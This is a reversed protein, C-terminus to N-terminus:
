AALDVGKMQKIIADVDDPLAQVEAMKLVEEGGEEQKAADEEPKIEAKSNQQTQAKDDEAQKDKNYSTKTAGFLEDAQIKM